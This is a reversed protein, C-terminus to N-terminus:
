YDVGKVSRRDRVLRADPGPTAKVDRDRWARQADALHRQNIAVPVPIGLRRAAALRHHGEGIRYRHPAERSQEINIPSEWGAKSISTELANIYEEEGISGKERDIEKLPVHPYGAGPAYRGVADKYPPIARGGAAPDREVHQYPRLRQPDMMYIGPEMGEPFFDPKESAYPYEVGAFQRDSINNSM